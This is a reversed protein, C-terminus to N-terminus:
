FAWWSSCSQCPKFTSLKRQLNFPSPITMDWVVWMKVCSCVDMKRWGEPWRVDVVNVKGWFGQLHWQSCLLCTRQMEFRHLVALTCQSNNISCFISANIYLSHADLQSKLTTKVSECVSVYWVYYLQMITALLHKIGCCCCVFIDLRRELQQQAPKTDHSKCADRNIHSFWEWQDTIRWHM